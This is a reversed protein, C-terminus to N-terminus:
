VHARIKAVVDPSLVWMAESVPNLALGVGESMGALMDRGGLVVAPVGNRFQKYGLRRSTGGCVAHSLVDSAETTM